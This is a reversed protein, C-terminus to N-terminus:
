ISSTAMIRDSPLLSETVLGTDIIFEWRLRASVNSCNSITGDIHIIPLQCESGVEDAIYNRPICRIYTALRPRTLPLSITLRLDHFCLCAM